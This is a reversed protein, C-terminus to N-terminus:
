EALAPSPPLVAAGVLTNSVYGHIEDQLVRPDVVPLAAVDPDGGTLIAAIAGRSSASPSVISRSPRSTEAPNM